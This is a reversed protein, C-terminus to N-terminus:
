FTHKVTSSQIRTNRETTSLHSETGCRESSWSATRKYAAAREPQSESWLM